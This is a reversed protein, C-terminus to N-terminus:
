VGMFAEVFAAAVEPVLANGYARLRGMVPSLGDALPELGPEVPRQCGDSCQVWEAGGWFGAGGLGEPRGQLLRDQGPRPELESGERESPEGQLAAGEAERREDRRVGHPYGLAGAWFLRQRKHPAGVSHAGLVASGCAYGEGELDGFVLDLWGHRIANEVQEGIVVPPKCERVLAFFAPWLHREDATGRESGAHSFPQCPCSGTWLPRGSPVGALALALPWGGIGAFFHCQDYGRLDDPRVETISREDVDGVPLLGDKILNRLWDAAFPEWENYYNM